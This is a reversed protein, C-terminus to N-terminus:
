GLFDSLLVRAQEQFHSLLPDTELEGKQAGHLFATWFRHNWTIGEPSVGLEGDPIVHRPLPRDADLLAADDLSLPAGQDILPHAEPTDNIRVEVTPILEDRTSRIRSTLQGRVAALDPGTLGQELSRAQYSIINDFNIIGGHYPFMENIRQSIRLFWDQETETGTKNWELGTIERVAERIREGETLSGQNPVKPMHIFSRRAELPPMGPEILQFYRFFSQAIRVISHTGSSNQDVEFHLQQSVCDGRHTGLAGIHNLAQTVSGFFEDDLPDARMGGINLEKAGLVDDLLDLTLVRDGKRARLGSYDNLPVLNVTGEEMLARFSRYAEDFSRYNQVLRVVGGGPPDDLDVTELNIQGSEPSYSWKFYNGNADKVACEGQNYRIHRPDTALQKITAEVIETTRGDQGSHEAAIRAVARQLNEHHTSLVVEAPQDVSVGRIPVPLQRGDKWVFLLSDGSLQLNDIRYQHGGYEFFSTSGIFVKVKPGLRIPAPQSFEVDWGMGHLHLSVQQLFQLDRNRDPDHVWEIEPGVRQRASIAAPYFRDIIRKQFQGSLVLREARHLGAQDIPTIPDHSERLIAGLLKELPLDSRNVSPSRLPKLVDAELLLRVGRERLLGHTRDPQYLAAVQFSHSSPVGIEHLLLGAIAYPDSRVLDLQPIRSTRILRGIERGLQDVPSAQGILTRFAQISQRDIGFVSALGVQLFSELVKGKDEERWGDQFLFLGSGLDTSLNGVVSLGQLKSLLGLQPAFPALGRGILSATLHSRLLGLGINGLTLFGGLVLLSTTIKETRSKGSDFLLSGIGRGTQWIMSISGLGGSVLFLNPNRLPVFKPTRLTTAGRHLGALGIATWSFLQSTVDGLESLNLTM